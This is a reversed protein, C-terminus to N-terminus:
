ILKRIMQLKWKKNLWEGLFAKQCGVTYWGDERRNQTLHYSLTDRRVSDIAVGVHEIPSPRGDPAVIRFSVTFLRERFARIKLGSVTQGAEVKIQRTQKRDKTGPYFSM